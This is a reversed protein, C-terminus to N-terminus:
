GQNVEDPKRVKSVKLIKRKYVAPGPVVSRFCSRDIAAYDHCEGDNGEEQVPEKESM